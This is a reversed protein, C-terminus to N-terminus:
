WKIIAAGWSLGAGFGVLVIKNGPKLMEKEEMDKLLLPISASSTNGYHEVNTPFKEIPEKLRKAVSDIIRKNAQHLVYYSVEEKKLKNLTIIDNIIQPVKSVAFKFVESGDMEMYTKSSGFDNKLTLADGKEGMSYMLPKFDEHEDEEIVAAGAGDGFLICSGRDSWDVVNSLTESGIILAKKCMGAKMYALVTNYAFVFGSCAVTIDFGIANVAGIEKQIMCATNPMLDNATNTSVIIIDLSEVPIKAEKIAEKSALIALSTTTEGEKAIHRGVIGTRERIWEDSTEVMTSIENNDMIYKPVATGIGTIKGIM